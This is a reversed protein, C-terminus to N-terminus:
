SKPAGAANMPMGMMTLDKSVFPRGAFARWAPDPDIREASNGDTIERTMEIWVNLPV